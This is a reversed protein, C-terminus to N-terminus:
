SKGKNETSYGAIAYFITSHRRLYIKAGFASTTLEFRAPDAMLNNFYRPDEDDGKRRRGPGVAVDRV